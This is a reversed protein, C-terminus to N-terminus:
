YTPGTRMDTQKIIM